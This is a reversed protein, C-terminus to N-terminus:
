GASGPAPWTSCASAARSRRRGATTRQGPGALATRRHRRHVGLGAPRVAMRRVGRQDPRHARLRVDSRDGPGDLLDLDDARHPEPLAAQGAVAAGRQGLGDRGPGAPVAGPVGAGVVRGGPRRARGGRVAAGRAHAPAPRRGPGAAAGASRLRRVRAGAALHPRRDRRDDDGARRQGRRARPRRQGRGPAPQLGTRRDRPGGPRAACPQQDRVDSWCRAPAARRPRDTGPALIAGHPRDGVVLTPRPQRRSMRQGVRTPVTSSATSDTM